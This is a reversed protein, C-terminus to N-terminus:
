YKPFKSSEGMPDTCSIKTILVNAVLSPESPGAYGMKMSGSFSIKYRLITVIKKGMLKFMHKPHEFSGRMSVTRQTGVVHTKCSFYLFYNQLVCKLRQEIFEWLLVSLPELSIVTTGLLLSLSM